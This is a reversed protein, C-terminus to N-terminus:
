SGAAPLGILDVHGVRLKSQARDIHRHRKTRWHALVANSGEMESAASFWGDVLAYQLAGEEADICWDSFRSTVSYGYQLLLQHTRHGAVPGLAPGFGKDTLQHANLLARVQSDEPETPDCEMRGDYTLAFLVPVSLAAAQQVLTCLWSESVLDLLASATLLTAQSLPLQDLQTALDFNLYQYRCEFDPGRIEGYPPEAMVQSAHLSQAWSRMREFGAVVLRPDNEILLWEQTGGLRPALYRLNAGTGSGLDVVTHRPECRRDAALPAELGAARSRADLAERQALWEASFGSM